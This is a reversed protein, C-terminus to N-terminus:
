VYKMKIMIKKKSRLEHNITCIVVMDNPKFIFNYTRVTVDADM